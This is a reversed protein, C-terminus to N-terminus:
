MSGNKLALLTEQTIPGIPILSKDQPLAGFIEIFARVTSPSTFIIEDIFNLDPLPLTYRTLTDYLDCAQYRMEREHFFNVLVPRSLSSRPLLIYADDLSLTKLLAIVGEQTEVPAIYQPVMGSMSVYAATVTGIAIIQSSSLCEVTKGLLHLHEVFIRVANKSTFIFHTYHELDDYARKLEPHDHARPEIRIVPFHLVHGQSEFHTPDTGLYLIQKM